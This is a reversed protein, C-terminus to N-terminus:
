QEPPPEDEVLGDCQELRAKYDVEEALVPRAQDLLKRARDKTEPQAALICALELRARALALPDGDMKTLRDITSELLPQAEESADTRSLVIGLTVEAELTRRADPGLGERWAKTAARSHALADEPRDLKM